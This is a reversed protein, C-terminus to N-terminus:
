CTPRFVLRAIGSISKKNQIAAEGVNLENGLGEVKDALEIEAGAFIGQVMEPVRGFTQPCESEDM